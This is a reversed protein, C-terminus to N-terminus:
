HLLPSTSFLLMMAPLSALSLRWVVQMPGPAEAIEASPLHFTVVALLALGVTATMQFAARKRVLWAAWSYGLLVALQFYVMCGLWTGSTGGYMPLLRKGMIPQIAFALFAALPVATVVMVHLAQALFDKPRNSENMPFNTLRPGPRAARPRP